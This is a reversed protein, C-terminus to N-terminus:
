RNSAPAIRAWAPLDGGEDMYFRPSRLRPDNASSPGLSYSSPMGAFEAHMQPASSCSCLLLVTAVALLSKMTFELPAGVAFRHRHAMTMGDGGTRLRRLSEKRASQSASFCRAAAM